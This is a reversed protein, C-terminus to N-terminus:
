LIEEKIEHMRGTLRDYMLELAPGTAGSYRNKAVAVKTKHREAENEAMSNRELTIVADSLQAIAGSGRLQSL